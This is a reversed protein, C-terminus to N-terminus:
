QRKRHDTYRFHDEWQSRFSGNENRTGTLLYKVLYFGATVGASMVFYEWLPRLGMAENIAIHDM